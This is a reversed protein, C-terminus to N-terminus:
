VGQFRSRDAYRRLENPGAGDDVLGSHVLILGPLHFPAADVGVAADVGNVLSLAALKTRDRRRVACQRDELTLRSRGAGDDNEPSAM